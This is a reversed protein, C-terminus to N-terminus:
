LRKTTPEFGVAGVLNPFQSAILSQFPENCRYTLRKQNDLVLNLFVKRCIQDKQVVDASRMKNGLTKMLNLFDERNLKMTDSHEIKNKLEAIENRCNSIIIDADEVDNNLKDIIAQATAKRLQQAADDIKRQQNKIIAERSARESRLKELKSDTCQSIRENYLHYMNDNFQLKDFLEYIQDFVVQAQVSKPNRHCNKNPCTYRLIRGSKDRPMNRGVTMIHGCEACYVMGALPKFIHEYVATQNYKKKHAHGLTQAEGYEEETIMPKFAYHECLHVKEGGQQLLGYYFTDKFINELTTESITHEKKTTKTTRRVGKDKLFAHIKKCSWKEKIRLRWAEKLIDFNADPEYHVTDNNITYGWKPTGGSLGREVLNSTVGRQVRESLADSYQKSFVFLMGLMMKGSANNEFNHQCFKLDKIIGNDIDDIIMGAELMNRALRDPHWALIGDYKGKNFDKLMTSFKPRNNVIKASKQETITEVIHLNNREAYKKCEAIQDEISHKQGQEDESSKRAYLVYRLKPAHNTEENM